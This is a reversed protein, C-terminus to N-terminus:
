SYMKAKPAQRRLEDYIDWEVLENWLIGIVVVDPLREKLMEILQSSQTMVEVMHGRETLRPAAEQMLAKYTDDLLVIFAM